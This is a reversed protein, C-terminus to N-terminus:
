RSSCSSSCPRSSASCCPPPCPALPPWVSCATCRLGIYSTQVKTWSTVMWLMQEALYNPHRSISFLGWSIFGASFPPGLDGASALQKKTNQFDEQQNDAVTEVAVLALFTLAALWDVLNIHPNTASAAAAVWAPAALGLLLYNQYLSIFLLNFLSWGPRTNLVPWQRVYVWRYDECGRSRVSVSKGNM